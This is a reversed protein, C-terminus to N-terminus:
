VNERMRKQHADIISYWIREVDSPRVDLEPDDLLMFIAQNVGTCFGECRVIFVYTHGRIQLACDFGTKM